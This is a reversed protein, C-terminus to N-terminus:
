TFAMRDSSTCFKNGCAGSSRGPMRSNASWEASPVGIMSVSLRSAAIALARVGPQVPFDPFDRTVDDTLYYALCGTAVAGLPGAPTSVDIPPGVYEPRGNPDVGILRTLVHRDRDFEFIGARDLELDECLACILTWLAKLPDRQGAMNRAARVLSNLPRARHSGSETLDGM